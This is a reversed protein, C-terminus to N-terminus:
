AKKIIIEEKQVKNIIARVHSETCFLGEALAKVEKKVQDVGKFHIATLVVQKASPMKQIAKNNSLHLQFNQSPWINQKFLNFYNESWLFLGQFDSAKVLKNNLWFTGGM